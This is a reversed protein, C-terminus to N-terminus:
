INSMTLAFWSENGNMNSHDNHFSELPYYWYFVIVCTFLRTEINHLKNGLCFLKIGSTLINHALRKLLAIEMWINWNCSLKRM